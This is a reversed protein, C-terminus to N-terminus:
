RPSFFLTFRIEHWARLEIHNVIFNAFLLLLFLYCIPNCCGYPLFEDKIKGSPLTVEGQTHGSKLRDM